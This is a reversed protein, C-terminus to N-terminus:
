RGQEGLFKKFKEEMALFADVDVEEAHTKPKKESSSLINRIVRKLQMPKKARGYYGAWFGTQAALIQKDRLQYEYGKICASFMAMNM